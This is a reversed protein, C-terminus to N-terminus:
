EVKELGINTQVASWEPNASQGVYRANRLEPDKSNNKRRVADYQGFHQTLSLHTLHNFHTLSICGKWQVKPRM